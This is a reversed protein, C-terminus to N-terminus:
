NASPTLVSQRVPRDRAMFDESPKGGLEYRVFARDLWIAYKSFNGGQGNNAVGLSQNTSTPTNNEGTAIRIGMTFGDDLEM